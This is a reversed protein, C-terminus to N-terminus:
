MPVLYWASADRVRGTCPVFTGNRYILLLLFYCMAVSRHTGGQCRFSITNLQLREVDLVVDLLLAPVAAQHVLTSLVRSDLGTVLLMDYEQNFSRADLHFCDYSQGVPERNQPLAHCELPRDFNVPVYQLMYDLRNWASPNVGCAFYELYTIMRQEEKGCHKRPVYFCRSVRSGHGIDVMHETEPEYEIRTCNGSHGRGLGDGCRNCCFLRNREAVFTCNLCRKRMDPENPEYM